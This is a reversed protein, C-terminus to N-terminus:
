IRQTLMMAALCVWLRVKLANLGPNSSKFKVMSDRVRLTYPNGRMLPDESVSIVGKIGTGYRVQVASVDGEIGMFRACVNAVEQSCDGMGDTFVSLALTLYKTRCNIM